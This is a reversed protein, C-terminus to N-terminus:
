PNHHNNGLTMKVFVRLEYLEQLILLHNPFLDKSPLSLSKQSCPGTGADLASSGWLGQGHSTPCSAWVSTPWQSRRHVGENSTLLKLFLSTVRTLDRHSAGPRVDTGCVGEARWNSVEQSLSTPSGTARWAPALPHGASQLPTKRSTLSLFERPLDLLQWHLLSSLCVVYPLSTFGKNIPSYHQVSVQRLGRGWSSISDISQGSCPSHLCYWPNTVYQCCCDTQDLNEKKLLTITAWLEFISWASCIMYTSM